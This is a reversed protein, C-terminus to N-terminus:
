TGPVYARCFPDSSIEEVDRYTTLQHFLLIGEERCRQFFRRNAQMIRGETRPLVPMTAVEPDLHGRHLDIAVAAARVGDIGYPM